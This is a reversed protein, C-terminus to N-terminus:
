SAVRRAGTGGSRGASTLGGTTGAAATGELVTADGSDVDVVGIIGRVDAAGVAEVKEPTGLVGPTGGIDVTKAGGGSTGGRDM